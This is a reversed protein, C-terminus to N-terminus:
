QRKLTNSGLLIENDNIIEIPGLDSEEEDASCAGEAQNFTASLRDETWTKVKPGTDDRVDVKVVKYKGRLVCLVRDDASVRMVVTGSKTFVYAVSNTHGAVPRLSGEWSGVIIRTVDDACVAAPPLTLGLLLILRLT